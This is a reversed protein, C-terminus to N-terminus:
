LPRSLRDFAAPPVHVTRWRPSRVKMARQYADLNIVRVAYWRGRHEFVTQFLGDPPQEECWYVFAFAARFAPGFLKEWVRLSEIDELTVWSDLRSARSLDPADPLLGPTSGTAGPKAASARVARPKRRAIKRGKVEVLLNVRSQGEPQDYLVVDFSKLSSERDPEGPTSHTIRFSEGEPLAAKKAEDVAVYPLRQARLYDEFAHEYHHRRLM